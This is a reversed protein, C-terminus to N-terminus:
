AIGAVFAHAGGEGLCKVVLHVFPQHTTGIAVIRVASELRLLQSGSVILVRYAGFAM